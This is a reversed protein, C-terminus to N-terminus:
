TYVKITTVGTKENLLHACKIGMKTETRKVIKVRPEIESSTLPAAFWAAVKKFLKKMKTPEKFQSTKGLTRRTPSDQKPQKFTNTNGKHSKRKNDTENPTSIILKL